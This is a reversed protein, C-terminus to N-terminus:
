NRSLIYFKESNQYIKVQEFVSYFERTVKLWLKQREVSRVIRYKYEFITQKIM